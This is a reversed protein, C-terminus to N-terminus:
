QKTLVEDVIRYGNAGTINNLYAVNFHFRKLSPNYTALKVEISSNGALFEPSFNLTIPFDTNGTLGTPVTPLYAYGSGGLNAFDIRVINGDVPSAVKPSPLILTTQYTPPIVPYTYSLSNVNNYNYRIGVNTYTGAQPNGIIHYFITSYNSSILNGGGDTISIPLIYLKSPDIKQPFIILKIDPSYSQGARIVTSTATFSYTSDPLKEFDAGPGANYATIAALDVAVKVTVDSTAPNGNNVYFIKFSFTDTTLTNDVKIEQDGFRAVGGGLIQVFPKSNIDTPNLGYEGNEFGKDKLCSSLLLLSFLAPFIIFTKKM